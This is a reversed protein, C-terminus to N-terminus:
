SKGNAWYIRYNSDRYHDLMQPSPHLNKHDAHSDSVHQADQFRILFGDTWKEQKGSKFMIYLKM